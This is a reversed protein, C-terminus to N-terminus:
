LGANEAAQLREAATKYVDIYPNMEHLMDTLQRLLQLCLEPNQQGRVQAAYVPNYFFLQVYQPLHDDVTRLPGQLHYLEGHINFNTVRHQGDLRRNPICSVSTFAFAANYQQLSRWFKKATTDGSTLLNWLLDPPDQIPLLVVAGRKCCVEYHPINVTSKSIREDAWHLAGCCHCIRDMRGLDLPPPLDLASTYAAPANAPALLLPQLSPRSSSAPLSPVSSSAVLQPSRPPSTVPKAPPALVSSSM